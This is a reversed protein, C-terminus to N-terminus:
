KVEEETQRSNTNNVSLPFLFSSKLKKVCSRSINSLKFSFKLCDDDDDGDDIYSLPQQIQM